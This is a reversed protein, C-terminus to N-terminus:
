EASVLGRMGGRAVAAVAACFLFSALVSRGGIMEETLAGVGASMIVTVGILLVLQGAGIAARLRRRERRVAVRDIERIGGRRVLSLLIVCFGAQLVTCLALGWIGGVGFVGFFQWLEQGSLYGAGLFCGAYVLALRWVNIQKM